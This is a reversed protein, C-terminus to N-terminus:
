SIEAAGSLFKLGLSGCVILTLCVIRAFTLHEGFLVIGLVAAGIGTRGVCATGVPLQRMALGLLWFSM